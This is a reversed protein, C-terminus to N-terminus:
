STRFAKGSLQLAMDKIRGEHVPAIVPGVYKRVITTAWTVCNDAGNAVPNFSYRGTPRPKAEEKLEELKSEDLAWDKMIFGGRNRVCRDYFLLDDEICGEVSHQFLFDRWKAPDSAEEPLLDIRFRFGRCVPASGEMWFVAMHGPDNENEVRSPQLKVGLM